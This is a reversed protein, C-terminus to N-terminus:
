SNHGRGISTYARWYVTVVTHEDKIVFRIANYYLIDVSDGYKARLNALKNEAKANEPNKTAKSLLAHFNKVAGGEARAHRPFREKFRQLAHRSAFYACEHECSPNERRRISVIQDNIVRFVMKDKIFTTLNPNRHRIMEKKAFSFLEHIHQKPSFGKIRYEPFLTKFHEVATDTVRM